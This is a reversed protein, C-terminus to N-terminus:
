PLGTGDTRAAPARTRRGTRPPRGCCRGTRRSGRSSARGSARGRPAPARADHDALLLAVPDRVVDDLAEVLREDRRDLALVDEVEGGRQVVDDVEDFLDGVVEPQVPDLRRHLLRLLERADEVLGAALHVVRDGAQAREAVDAVERDLDVPELVVAVALDALRERRQELVPISGIITMRQFSMKSRRSSAMSEVSRAALMRSPTIILFRYAISSTTRQITTPVASAKSKVFPNWSVALATAVEIEVRAIGGFSATPSADASFKTPAKRESCTAAVMAVPMTSALRTVGAITNAPSTPAIAHFRAVQYKPSGAEEECARIPPMTPEAKTAAPGGATSPAPMTSFTITGAIM